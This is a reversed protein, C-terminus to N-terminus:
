RSSTSYTDDEKLGPYSVWEVKDHKTLWKALELANECHREARLSLTELGQLLLFSGFPNQSPGFDRLNEVRTKIAFAANVGLVGGPGFNEWFNMGHYGPSPNTFEPFNGNGWNFSGADIIVGGITNGHGGIWKTASAVIIDAGFDIPKCVFGGMGFTNDVIFPIKCKKAILSIKEFDPVTYKPNGISEVYIAKTKKDILSNISESNSGNAFKVKIGLRPFAVKFQNYTGGYIHSSSVINDGQSAISNIALFQAAQGSSTAIASVGGELAAIRKEFVDNTPNMIRSYINGFEKLAFLNAAHNTNDFTFSTSAFIPVARANTGEAPEQGAHVQLTEFNKIPNM